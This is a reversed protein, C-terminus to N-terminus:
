FERFDYGRGASITCILIPPVLVAVIALNFTFDGAPYFEDSAPVFNPVRHTDAGGATALFSM